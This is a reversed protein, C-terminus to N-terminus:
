AARMPLPAEETTIHYERDGDLDTSSTPFLDGPSQRRILRYNSHRTQYDCCSVKVKDTRDGGRIKSLAVIVIATRM